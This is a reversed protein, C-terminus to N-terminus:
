PPGAIGGAQMPTERHETRKRSKVLERQDECREDDADAEPEPETGHGLDRDVEPGSHQGAGHGARRCGERQDVVETLALGAGGTRPPPHVSDSISPSM